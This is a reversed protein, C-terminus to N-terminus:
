LTISSDKGTIHRIAGTDILPPLNKLYEPKITVIFEAKGVGKLSLIADTSIFYDEKLASADNPSSYPGLRFNLKIFTAM